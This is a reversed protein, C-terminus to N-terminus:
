QPEGGALKKALKVARELGRLAEKYGATAKLFEAAAQEFRSGSAPLAAFTEVVNGMRTTLDRLDAAAGVILGAYVTVEAAMTSPTVDAAPISGPEYGAGRLVQDIDSRLGTMQGM